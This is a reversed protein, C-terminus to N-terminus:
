GGPGGLGLVLESAEDTIIDMKHGDFRRPLARAAM